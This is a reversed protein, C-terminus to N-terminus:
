MESDGDAFLVLEPIMMHSILKDSMILEWSM